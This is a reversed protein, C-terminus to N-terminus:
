NRRADVEEKLRDRGASWDQQIVLAYATSEESGDALTATATLTYARETARSPRYAVLDEADAPLEEWTGVQELQGGRLYELSEFPFLGALTAASVTLASAGPTVTLLPQAPSIEGHYGTVAIPAPLGTAPDTEQVIATIAHEIAGATEPLRFLEPAAPSWTVVRAM